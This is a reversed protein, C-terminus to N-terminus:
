QRPARSSLKGPDLYGPLRRALEPDADAVMAWVAALRAGIGDNAAGDNAAGDPQDHQRGAPPADKGAPRDDLEDIALCVRALRADISSCV